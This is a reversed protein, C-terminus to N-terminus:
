KCSNLGIQAKLKRPKEINKGGRLRNSTIIASRVNPGLTIQNKGAAMFDCATVTLGDCDAQICADGKGARDWDSFHCGEFFVHGKGALRAHYQTTEIPWFGTATFKVPGHNSPEVEIGAMMQCNAFTVGAHGQVARVRVAVPGVDSGSQSVLVNGPGNEFAKFVFGVSYGICFSNTMYEWDTRGFIFAVGEEMTFERVPGETSWFPWIHANEIRGVDFCKDVLIGRYLAQAYLRNIYHRGCPFTGFDVAQYPNVMLTDLITINDGRGRVTWPYPHPPNRDIQEPYAIVLGKLMSCENMSIFPTGDQEGKGAVALLTSGKSDKHRAPARWTGELTVDRPINLTGKILFRGVPVHVVGGTEGAVDLAQQFASTNDTEGDGVAGFDTVAHDGPLASLAESGFMGVAAGALTARICWSLFTANKM